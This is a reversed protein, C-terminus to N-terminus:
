KDKKWKRFEWMSMSNFKDLQERLKANEQKLKENDIQRQEYLKNLRNNEQKLNNIDETNDQKSHTDEIAKLLENHHKGLETQISNSIENVLNSQLSKLDEPAKSTEKRPEPIADAVEQGQEYKVITYHLAQKMTGGVLKFRDMADTILQLDYKTFRRANDVKKFEYGMSEMTQAYLRMSSVSINLFQSANKTSLENTQQM